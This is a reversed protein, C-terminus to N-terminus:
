KFMNKKTILIQNQNIGKKGWQAQITLQLKISSYYVQIRNMHPFELQM